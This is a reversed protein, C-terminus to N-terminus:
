IVWPQGMYSGHSGFFPGHNVWIHGIQGIHAGHMVLRHGVHDMHSGYIVWPQGMCSENSGHIVSIVWPITSGFMVWIVWVHCMYSVHNVLVNGMQNWTHGLGDNRYVRWWRPNYM